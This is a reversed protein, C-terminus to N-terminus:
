AAFACNPTAAISTDFGRDGPVVGLQERLRLCEAEWEDVRRRVDGIWTPEDAGSRLVNSLEKPDCRLDYAEDGYQTDRFYSHETTRAGQVLSKRRGSEFTGAPFTNKLDGQYDGVQAYACEHLPAHAGDNVWGVLDNSQAYEPVDIGAATLLTAFLDVTQVLGGVHKGRPCSAGEPPAIILPVHLLCEYPVECKEFLGKEGMFDAHDAAFVVWTSDLLGRRELEEGIRQMQSDVYAIMGYYVALTKRLDEEGAAATNVEQLARRQWAPRDQDGGREPLIAKAPDILSDYPKPVFYPPHPDNFAVHIFFPAGAGTANDIMKIARDALLASHGEEPRCNLGGASWGCDERGHSYKLTLAEHLLGVEWLDTQEHWGRCLNRGMEYHGAAATYYGGSTFLESMQPLNWPAKNQWCTVQHVLPHVGTFVSARSPTCITSVAYADRFTVGRAALRETFPCSVLSNGYVGTASAKQQDATIYLINPPRSM